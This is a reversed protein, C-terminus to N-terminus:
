ARNEEDDQGNEGIPLSGYSRVHVWSKYEPAGPNQTLATKENFYKDFDNSKFLKRDAGVPCVKLCFGCPECFCRQLKQKQRLCASADKRAYGSGPSEPGLAQVPCIKRCYQCHRCLEQAYLPDGEIALNTFVAKLRIRPGYEETLFMHSWGITGLGAYYGACDNSFLPEPTGENGYQPIGIAQFGGANLLMVLQYAAKELLKDTVIFQERGLVSPAAEVIPLWLPVGLVIVTKAGPWISHPHIEGPIGSTNGWREVPAFGICEAGAQRAKETIKAKMSLSRGFNM